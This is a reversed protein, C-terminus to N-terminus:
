QQEEKGGGQDGGVGPLGGDPLGAVDQEQGGARDNQCGQIM